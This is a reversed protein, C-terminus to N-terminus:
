DLWVLPAAGTKAVEDKSPPDFLPIWQPGGTIPNNQPLVFPNYMINLSPILQNKKVM